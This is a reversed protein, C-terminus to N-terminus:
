TRRYSLAVDVAGTSPSSIFTNLNSGGAQINSVFRNGRIVGRAFRFKVPAARNKQSFIGSSGWPKRRFDRGVGVSGGVQYM